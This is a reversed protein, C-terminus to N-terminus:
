EEEDAEDDGDMFRTRVISILKEMLEEEPPVFEAPECSLLVGEAGTVVIRTKRKKKKGFM